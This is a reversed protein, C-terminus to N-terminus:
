TEKTFIQAYKPSKKYSGKVCKADPIKGVNTYFVSLVIVLFCFTKRPVDKKIRWM